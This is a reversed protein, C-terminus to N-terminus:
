KKRNFENRLYLAKKYDSLTNINFFLDKMYGAKAFDVFKVEIHNFIHYMAFEKSAFLHEIIPLVDNQYLGFLPEIGSESVAITAPVQPDFQEIIYQIHEKKLFPMDCSTLFLPKHSLKLGTYLGGMPGADLVIDDVFIDPHLNLGEEKKGIVWCKSTLDIIELYIRELLTVEGFKLLAKEQGFRKSMGGALVVANIEHM